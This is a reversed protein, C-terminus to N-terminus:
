FPVVAFGIGDVFGSLYDPHGRSRRALARMGEPTDAAGRSGLGTLSQTDAIGPFASASPILPEFLTLSLKQGNRIKVNHKASVSRTGPAESDWFWRGVKQEASIPIAIRRM